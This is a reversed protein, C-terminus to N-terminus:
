ENLSGSRYGELDLVVYKFGLRKIDPAITKLRELNISEAKGIEIRAIEGHVRVRVDRHGLGKVLSEAKDVVRLKELTIKEGYQIRSSLCANQAKDWTELGLLKSIRRIETKNLKAHILPSLTNNHEGARRGPRFDSLDDFNSGDFVTNYGEREKIENLAKFLGDKCYFCRDKNNAVFNRNELENYKIIRHNIGHREAFRRAFKLEGEPMTPSDATIALHKDLTKSAIFSVLASDTGGSFAVVASKVQKIFECLVLFKKATERDERSLREYNEAFQERWNLMVVSGGVM